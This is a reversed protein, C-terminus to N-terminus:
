ILRSIIILPDWKWSNSWLKFAYREWHKNKMSHYVQDCILHNIYGIGFSTGLIIAWIFSLWWIYISIAIISSLILAFGISHIRGWHTARKNCIFVLSYVLIFGILTGSILIIIFQRSLNVDFQYTIKEIIRYIVVGISLSVFVPFIYKGLIRTNRSEKPLDIDPAIAGIIFLIPICLVAIFSSWGGQINAEILINSVDTPFQLVIWIISVLIFILNIVAWNVHQQFSGM